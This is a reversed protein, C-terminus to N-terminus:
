NGYNCPVKLIYVYGTNLMQKQIELSEHLTKDVDELEKEQKINEKATVLEELAQIRQSELSQFLVGRISQLHENSLKQLELLQSFGESTTATNQRISSNVSSNSTRKPM